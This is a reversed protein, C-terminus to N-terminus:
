TKFILPCRCKLLTRRGWMRVCSLSGRSPLEAAVLTRSSTKDYAGILCPLFDATQYEIWTQIPVYYDRLQRTRTIPEGLPDVWSEKYHSFNRWKRSKKRGREQNQASEFAFEFEFADNSIQDTYPPYDFVFPIPGRPGDAYAHAYRVLNRHRVNSRMFRTKKRIMISTSASVFNLKLDHAL